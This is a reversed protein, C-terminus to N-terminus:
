RSLLTPNYTIVEIAHRLQRRFQEDQSDLWRLYSIGILDPPIDQERLIPLIPKAQGIAAGVEFNVYTSRHNLVTVILHAERIGKMIADHISGGIPIREYDVWIDLGLEKLVPVIEHQVFDEDVHAYSLFCKLKKAM